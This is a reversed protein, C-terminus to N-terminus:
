CLQKSTALMNPTTLGSLHLMRQSSMGCNMQENARDRERENENVFHFCYIKIPTTVTLKLHFVSGFQLKLKENQTSKKRETKM